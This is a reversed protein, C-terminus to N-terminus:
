FFTTFVKKPIQESWGQSGFNPILIKEILTERLKPEFENILINYAWVRNRKVNEEM